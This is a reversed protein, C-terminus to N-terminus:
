GGGGDNPLTIACVPPAHFLSTYNTVLLAKYSPATQTECVNECMRRSVATMNPDISCIKYNPALASALVFYWDDEFSKSGCCYDWGLWIMQGAGYSTTFAGTNGPTRYIKRASVPLSSSVIASTCSLNRLNPAGSAFGSHVVLVPNLSSNIDEGSNCGYSEVASYNFVPNLFSLSANHDGVIVVKGGNSVYAAISSQTGASISYSSQQEGVVISDFPGDGGSLAAAWGADDPTFETFDYGLAALSQSRLTHGGTYLFHAAQASQAGVLCGLLLVGQYLKSFTM